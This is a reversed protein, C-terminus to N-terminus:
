SVPRAIVEISPGRDFLGGVRYLLEQLWRLRPNALYVPHLRLYTRLELVEFGESELLKRITRPEFYYTHFEMPAEGYRLRQAKSGALIIVAEQITNKLSRFTNPVELILLGQNSLLKRCHRLTARADPLHELILSHIVDFQRGAVTVLDWVQAVNVELGLQERAHAALIPSSEIAFVRWGRSQAVELAYGGELCGIGLMAGRQPRWRELREMRSVFFPRWPEGRTANEASFFPHTAYMAALEPITPRPNLYVFGCRGCRAIGFPGPIRLFRTKKPQPVGDALGCLNCSVTEPM